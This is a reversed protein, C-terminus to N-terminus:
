VHFQGLTEELVGNWQGFHTLLALVCPCPSPSLDVIYDVCHGLM